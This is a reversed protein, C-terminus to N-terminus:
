ALAPWPKAARYLDKRLSIFDAAVKLAVVVVVVVNYSSMRRPWTNYRRRRRHRCCSKALCDLQRCGYCNTLGDM